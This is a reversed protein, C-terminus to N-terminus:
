NPFTARIVEDSIGAKKWDLIEEATLPAAPRNARAYAVIVDIGIREHMLALIKAELEAASLGRSGARVASATAPAVVAPVSAAAPAPTAPKKKGSWVLPGTAGPEPKLEALAALARADCAYSEFFVKYWNQASDACGQSNESQPCDTKKLTMFRSSKVLLVNGGLAATENRQARYPDYIHRAQEEQDIPATTSLLRCDGPLPPSPTAPTEVNAQYVQVQAGQPTLSACALNAAGLLVFWITKKM